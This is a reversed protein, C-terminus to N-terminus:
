GFAAFSHEIHMQFQWGKSGRERATHKQERERGAIRLRRDLDAWACDVARGGSDDIAFRDVNAVDLQFGHGLSLDFWSAWEARIMWLKM